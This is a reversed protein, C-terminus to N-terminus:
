DEKTVTKDVGTPETLGLNYDPHALMGRADTKFNTVQQQPNSECESTPPTVHTTCEQTSHDRALIAVQTAESTFVSAQEEGESSYGSLFLVWLGVSVRMLAQSDVSCPRSGRDRGRRDPSTGM